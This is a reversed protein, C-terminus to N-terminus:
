LEVKVAAERGRRTDGEQESGRRETAPLTSLDADTVTKSSERGLHELAATVTSRRENYASDVLEREVGTHFVLVRADPPITVPEYSLTGTDIHLARGERCLAVAL